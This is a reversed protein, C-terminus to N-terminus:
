EASRECKKLIEKIAKNVDHSNCLGTVRYRCKGFSWVQIEKGLPTRLYEIYFYIEGYNRIRSYYKGFFNGEKKVDEFNKTHAELRM